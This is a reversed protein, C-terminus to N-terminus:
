YHYFNPANNIQYLTPRSCGHNNCRAKVKEIDFESCSQTSYIAEFFRTFPLNIGAKGNSRPYNIEEQLTIWYITYKLWEIYEDDYSTCTGNDYIDELLVRMQDYTYHEYLIVEYLEQIVDTHRPAYDNMTLRYDGNEKRGPYNIIINSHPNLSGTGERNKMYQVGEVYNMKRYSM